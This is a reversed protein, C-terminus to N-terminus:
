KLKLDKNNEWTTSEGAFSMRRYQITAELDCSGLGRKGTIHHECADCYM